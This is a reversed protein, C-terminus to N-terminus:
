KGERREFERDIEGLEELDRETMEGPRSLIEGVLKLLEEETWKSLDPHETM